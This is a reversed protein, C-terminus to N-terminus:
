DDDTSLDDGLQALLELFEDDVEDAPERANHVAMPPQKQTVVLPRPEGDM